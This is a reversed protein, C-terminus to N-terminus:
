SCFHSSTSRLDCRNRKALELKRCKPVVCSVTNHPDNEDAASPDLQPHNSAFLGFRFWESQGFLNWRLRNKSTTWCTPWNSKPRPFGDRPLMTPRTSTSQRGKPSKM